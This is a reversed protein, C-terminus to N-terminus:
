KEFVVDGSSCLDFLMKWKFYYGSDGLLCLGYGMKKLLNVKILMVLFDSFFM